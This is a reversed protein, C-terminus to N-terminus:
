GRDLDLGWRDGERGVGLVPKRCGKEKLFLALFRLNSHTQRKGVRRGGKRGWVAVGTEIPM